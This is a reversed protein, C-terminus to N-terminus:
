ILNLPLFFRYNLKEFKNFMFEILIVIAKNKFLDLNDVENISEIFKKGDDSNIIWNVRMAQIDVAYSKYNEQGDKSKQVEKMNERYFKEDLYICKSDAIAVM